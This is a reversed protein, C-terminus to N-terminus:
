RHQKMSVKSKCPYASQLADTVLVTTSLQLQEPHDEMYKWVIRFGQGNDIGSPACYLPHGTRAAAIEQGAVFGNIWSLCSLFYVGQQASLSKDGDIYAKVPQCDALFRNGSDMFTMETPQNDAPKLM